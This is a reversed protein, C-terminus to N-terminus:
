PYAPAPSSSQLLLLLAPQLNTHIQEPMYTCLWLKVTLHAFHGHSFCCSSDAVGNWKEGIRGQLPCPLDRLRYEEATQEMNKRLCELINHIFQQQQQRHRQRAGQQLSCPTGLASISVRARGTGGALSDRKSFCRVTRMLTTHHWTIWLATTVSLEGSSFGPLELFCPPTRSGACPLLLAGETGSM